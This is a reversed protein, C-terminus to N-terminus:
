TYSIRHSGAVFEMAVIIETRTWIPWGNVLECKAWVQCKRDSLFRQSSVAYFKDGYVSHEFQAGATDLHSDRHGFQTSWTLRSSQTWRPCEKGFISSEQEHTVQSTLDLKYVDWDSCSIDLNLQVKPTEMSVRSACYITCLKWVSDLHRTYVIYLGSQERKLELRCVMTFVPEFHEVQMSRCSRGFKTLQHLRTSLIDSM